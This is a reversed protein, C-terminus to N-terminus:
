IKLTTPVPIRARTAPQPRVARATAPIVSRYNNPANAPKYTGCPLYREHVVDQAVLRQRPENQYANQRDAEPQCEADTRCFGPPVGENEAKKDGCGSIAVSFFGVALYGLKM